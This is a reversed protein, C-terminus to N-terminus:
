QRIAACAPHSSFASTACEREMCVLYRV